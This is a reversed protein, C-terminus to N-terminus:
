PEPPKPSNAPGCASKTGNLERQSKVPNQSNINTEKQNAKTTLPADAGRTNTNHIPLHSLKILIEEKGITIKNTITEVITRKQEFPFTNWKSYLEKADQLVVDASQHEIRMYDIDAHLEPLQEDIQHLQEELPKFLAVFTEKNMEDSMRMDLYKEMKKKVTQREQLVHNLRNEKEQLQVDIKQRYEPLSKKAMLFTELQGHYIDELDSEGIRTNCKTCRFTPANTRHFVYMKKDCTECYVFGALLHKSRPGLRKNKSFSQDLIRNCEDWDRVSVLAPCPVIVWDSAPKLVIKSKNNITKTYNARREGKATPDMLLRMIGTDNFPKGERTRYGQENLLDAVTKKRKHKLFLEYVLKRIPATEEDIVFERTEGQKGSWKYGLSPKGGLPKGMKARIPVSAAVRDAIEEREWQAMAALMTYFLRGAPTSTDIAEQLSILDADEAKFIEAFDLLERTNRALRALKSFVLGTIKGSRIDALMQKTQPYHMVSKGTMADLRYFAKVDWGKAEAYLRARKEHTEPSEGKVADEHSVRIWIGVSKTHQEM